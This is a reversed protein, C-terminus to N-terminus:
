DTAPLFFIAAVEPAPAALRHRHRRSAAAAKAKRGRPERVESLSPAPAAVMPASVPKPIPQCTGDIRSFGEACRQEERARRETIAEVANRTTEQTTTESLESLAQSALAAGSFAGPGTANNM